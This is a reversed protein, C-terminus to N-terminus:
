DYVRLCLYPCSLEAPKTNIAPLLHTSLPHPALWPTDRQLRSTTAEACSSGVLKLLEKLAVVGELRAGIM